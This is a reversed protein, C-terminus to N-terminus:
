RRTQFLPKDNDVAAQYPQTFDAFHRLAEEPNQDDRLAFSNFGVRKYFSLQDKLVDGIARLEGQYGYQIRLINAYSYGRGDAFVPFNIAILPLTPCHEKIAEPSDDSNLWVGVKRDSLEHAWAQFLSLPLILDGEPLSAMEGIDSDEVLVWKDDSIINGDKIINPM